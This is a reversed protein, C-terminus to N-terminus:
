NISVYTKVKVYNSNMTNPDYVDFDAIYSRDIESKWIDMWTELVCDPIKGNSEYERYKSANIKMGIMGNPIVESNEVKHGLIATYFGHEDSDYNTYMNIIRDDIKNLIKNSLSEAFWTNWLDSIDKKAHGDKNITRVAIGIINFGEM